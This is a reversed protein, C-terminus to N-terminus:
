KRWMLSPLWMKQAKKDGFTVTTVQGGQVVVYRSNVTTDIEYGPPNQERVLYTGPAVGDFAFGGDAGTTRSGILTSGNRLVDVHAGALGPEGADRLGNGNRDEFVVGRITGLAPTPTPTPEPTAAVLHVGVEGGPLPLSLVNGVPILTQTYPPTPPPPVVQAQVPATPWGLQALDLTLTVGATDSIVGNVQTANVTHTLAVLTWREPAPRPMWGAWWFRYPGLEPEGPTGATGGADTLVRFARPAAHRTHAELWNLAWTVTYPDSPGSHGGNFWYLEVPATANAARIANYLNQAHHPPVKTDQTGHVIALPVLTLNQAFTVPSRRAYDYPVEDPTGGVERRINPFYTGPGTTQDDHYWLALDTPGSFEVAAAFLDPFKALATLATLAGASDSFLYIRNPDVNYHARMYAIVDLIDRQAPRAGLPRYGVSVNPCWTGIDYPDQNLSREGHLEPAVFLWGRQAVPVGRLDSAAWLHHPAKDGCQIWGHVYVVLPVPGAPTWPALRAISARQTSGDWRSTFTIDVVTIPRTAQIIGPRPSRSIKALTPQAWAPGPAMLGHFLAVPFLSLVILIIWRSLVHTRMLEREDM